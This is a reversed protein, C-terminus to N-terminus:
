WSVDGLLPPITVPDPDAPPAPDPAPAPTPAPTPTPDAAPDIATTAGAPMPAVEAVPTAVGATLYRRPELAAGEFVM